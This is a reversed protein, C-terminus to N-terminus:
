LVKLLVILAVGGGIAWPLWNTSGSFLNNLYSSTVPQYGAASSYVPVQQGYANTTYSIPAPVGGQAVSAMQAQMVAQQQQAVMGAQTNLAKSQFYDNALSSLSSLGGGTTLFSGVSQIGSLASSGLSSLDSGLGSWFGGTSGTGSSVASSIASPSLESSLSSNISSGISSLTSSLGSQGLSGMGMGGTTSRRARYNALSTVKSSPNGAGSVNVPTGSPMPTLNAVKSVAVRHNKAAQALKAFLGPHTKMIWAALKLAGVPTVQTPKLSPAPKVVKPVSPANM